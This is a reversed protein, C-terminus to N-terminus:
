TARRTRDAHGTGDVLLAPIASSVRVTAHSINDAEVPDTTLDARVSIRQTGQSSFRLSRSFVTETEPPMSVTADMGAMRQGNVLVQVPVDLTQSGSNRVPVDFTIPFEPVTLDRSVNLRGLSINGGIPALGAAANVVWVHPRVAPFKLVDDFRSWAADAAPSWGVRQHDTFVVVERSGNSCRGLIGVAEECAQRMDAAGAPPPLDDLQQRVTELDQLPSEIVRVPKDRADILAVTDGPQLTDLFEQARRVAKQHLSILGDSRSMSNSGDLVLVVDRSGASRYGTLLGSNIWPRAAALAPLAVAGIRILLLLLEELRLKRRTKRSPNLFQMAGWQVIDYRRRSLLHAIVPLAIGALGLLMMPNLFFSM